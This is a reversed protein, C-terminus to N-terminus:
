GTQRAAYAAPTTGLHTRFERVLHAQDSYGLDAALEAWTMGSAQRAAEAAELLRYRRLVWTPSVGAHEAFMRQLTRPTVGAATALQEVRRIGRDAEALGAVRAVERAAAVRAPDAAAVVAALRDRLVAVRDPEADQPDREADIRETDIRETDIRKAGACVIEDLLRAADLCPIAPRGLPRTRDTLRVVPGPALAGLGGPLTLAAVTWGSGALRRSSLRTAVGYLVAEPPAPEGDPGAEGHGVSLNGGPHTLLQQTYTVGPPLSWTVGWFWEVLGALVEGAPYRNLAVVRQLQTPHLIGRADVEVPAPQVHRPGAGTGAGAGSATGSGHADTGAADSGAADSRSPM